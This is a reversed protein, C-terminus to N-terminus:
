FLKPERHERTIEYIRNNSLNYKRRLEAITAGAKYDAVVDDDRSISKYSPIYLQAGGYEKLIAKNDEANKVFEVFAEFVELNILAM